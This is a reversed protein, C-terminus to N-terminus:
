LDFRPVDRWGLANLIIEKHDFALKPFLPLGPMESVSFWECVDADSGAKVMAQDDVAISCRFAVSVIRTREEASERPDRGKRSYVGVLDVGDARINTEEALKRVATAIIGDDEFEFFGGPLTWQFAFPESRRKILLVKNGSIVVVDATLYTKTKEM